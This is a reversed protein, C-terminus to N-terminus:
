RAGGRGEGQKREVGAAAAALDSVHPLAVIAKAWMVPLSAEIERLVARAHGVPAASARDGKTGDEADSM